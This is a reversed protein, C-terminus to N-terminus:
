ARAGASGMWAEFRRELDQAIGRADLGSERYDIMPHFEIRARSRRVLSQWAAPCEPTGAITVALVRAGTKAVILGVGPHFEHITGAPREIRGEPFVGVVGGARVHAIAAKASTVDRGERDVPIVRSWDWLWDFAPLMMDLAMMWRIEFRCAGQILLPDVGATHNAAVVIPGPHAGAPLHDRGRVELRHVVRAYVPLFLLAAGILPDARENATLRRCLFAWALM